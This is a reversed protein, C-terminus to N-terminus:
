KTLQLIGALGASLTEPPVLLSVVIYCGEEYEFYYGPFVYVGEKDVFLEVWEDESRTSPLRLTAYWGGEAHLLSLTSNRVISQVLLYNSRIRERISQRITDGHDLLAPLALQVPTGVSLFTDSVIELRQLVEGSENGSVIIWSLKMQPLGCSKSLGNLAFTLPGSKGAFSEARHPDVNFAYEDFVEDVILAVNHRAAIEGIAAAEDQKLFMGTPNHPNIVVIAKTDTGLAERLSPLDVHWAGDYRLPYSGIEVDHLKALYEFLPYSPSPVLIKEGSNCLLMLVFAYAESTGATLIIHSPDIAIDRAAYYETIAKRASTLGAPEPAYQLGAPDALAHLIGSPYSFGAETPNSVTLDLIPLNGARRRTLLSALANPQRHWDTRRSFM